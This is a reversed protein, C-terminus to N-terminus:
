PKPIQRHAICFDTGYEFPQLYHPHTVITGYPLLKYEYWHLLVSLVSQDHRHAIFGERTSTGNNFCGADAAKLLDDFVWLATPSNFNLAFAGGWTQEMNPLDKECGFYSVCQDSIYNKLPHGLNHFAMIGYTFLDPTLEKELTMVSDLWIIKKYGQERMLQIMTLKFFYPRQDHTLHKFALPHPPESDTADWLFYDYSTNREISEALRPLAAPYNERGRKAYSVVCTDTNRTTRSILM